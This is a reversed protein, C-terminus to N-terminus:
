KRKRIRWFFLLALVAIFGLGYIEMRSLGLKWPDTLYAASAPDVNLGNLSVVGLAIAIAAAVGGVSFVARSFREDAAAAKRRRAQAAHYRRFRRDTYNQQEGPREAPKDTKDDM